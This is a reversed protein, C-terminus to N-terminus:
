LKDGNLVQLIHRVKLPLKRKKIIGDLHLLCSMDNSVLVEVGKGVADDLKDLGMRVSIEDYYVSFTGGFGCCEDPRDLTIIEIDEIHQFLPLLFSKTPAGLESSVGFRMGRLSHCGTHLAVKYPYSVKPLQGTYESMIYETLDRINDRLKVVKPTQEIVDYHEKIHYSCSGSIMLTQDYDGFTKVYHHYAGIAKHEYGSNALPQGCCTQGKPVEFDIGLKKMLEISSDAVEPYFEEIFCPISLAIKM